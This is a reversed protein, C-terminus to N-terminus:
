ERNNINQVSGDPGGLEIIRSENTRRDMVMLVPSEKQHLVNLIGSRNGGPVRPQFSDIKAVVFNPTICPSHSHQILRSEGLGVSSFLTTHM